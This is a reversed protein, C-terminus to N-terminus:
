DKKSNEYKKIHYRVSSPDINFYRATPKVGMKKAMNYINETTKDLKVDENKIIKFLLERQKKAEELKLKYDQNENM